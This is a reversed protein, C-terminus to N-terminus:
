AKTKIAVFNEPLSVVDAFRTRIRFFNEDDQLAYFTQDFYKVEMGMRTGHYIYKLNGFLIFATDSASTTPMADSLLVPYGWASRGQARAPDWYYRGMGDQKDSLSDWVTPHMVWQAGVRKKKTTLQQIAIRLDDWDVDDFSTSDLTSTNTSTNQLAGTFPSGSGNLAQEEITYQLDEIAQTRLISGIDLFTDEMLEDTVGVWGAFTECELDVYSMTPLQETKDTVENTVFTFEFVTSGQTPYRILRGSMPVKTLYPIIESTVDPTRLFDTAYITAPIAYQWDTGSADGTLPTGLDAKGLSWEKVDKIAPDYKIRKGGMEQITKLDKQKIAHLFKGFWYSRGDETNEKEWDKKKIITLGDIDNKLRGIEAKDEEGKAKLTEIEEKQSALVAETNDVWTKLKEPNDINENKEEDGM